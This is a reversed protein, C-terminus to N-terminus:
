GVSEASSAFDKDAASELFSKTQDHLNSQNGKLALVYDGGRERIMEVITKQWGMADITVICGGLESLKFLEPIATIESSKEDTKVQGLLLRNATAWASVM